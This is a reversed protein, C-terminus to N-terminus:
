LCQQVRELQEFVSHWGKVSGAALMGVVAEVDVGAAFDIRVAPPNSRAV